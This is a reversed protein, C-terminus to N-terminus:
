EKFIKTVVVGSSGKCTILYMGRALGSLDLYVSGANRLLNTEKLMKGNMDLVQLREFPQYFQVYVKEHGVLTPTIKVQSGNLGDIEIIASYSIHGDTDIIKLRYFARDNDSVPHNFRYTTSATAAVSGITTFDTGSTSWQVDFQAIHLGTAEWKLEHVSSKSTGNFSLLTLPLVGSSQVRYIIGNTPNTGLGVAYLEANEDEGFAVIGTPLGSQKHITFSGSNPKIVWANASLYDICVYWGYLDPFSTGRYVFGGTVSQGGNANSHDYDFIPFVYQSIALCGSDIKTINGEYCRWGYNIGGTNGAARFDIEERADQGVDGIWMDHTLRDFSWRFPNRLGFAWIEDRINDNTAVYPNDAPITYFPSTASTSANIRMMKGLLLNGNQANFHPDNANGGDGVAFYLYGDNGFNLKGGNHNNFERHNINLLVQGSAPDAFNANSNVHYRAVTVDGNLDVYYVFLFGNQAFNPHFAMSLLGREGDLRVLTSINLFVTDNLVGNKMYRVTGGRQVIFLRNSGDGANVIDIPASLGSTVVPNFALVPTQASLQLAAFHLLVVIFFIPLLRKRSAFYLDPM